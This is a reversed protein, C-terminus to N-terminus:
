TVQLKLLGARNVLWVSLDPHKPGLAKEGIAIARVYLTGAETYNGQFAISCLPARCRTTASRQMSLTVLAYVAKASLLPDTM